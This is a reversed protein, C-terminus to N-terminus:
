LKMLDMQVTLDGDQMVLNMQAMVGTLYLYCQDGSACATYSDSSCGGNWTCSGDDLTAEADYNEATEDTCGGVPPAGGVTFECTGEAGSDLGCSAVVNGDADSLVWSNGNWGDGYADIMTLTYDGDALCITGDGVVGTSGDSLSWSVESGWSGGGCSWTYEPDGADCDRNISNTYETEPIYGLEDMYYDIKDQDPHVKVTNVVTESGKTVRLAGLTAKDMANPNALQMEMELSLKEKVEATSSFSVSTVLLCMFLFTMAKKISKM